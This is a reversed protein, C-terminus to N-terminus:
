GNVSLPGPKHKDRLQAVATLIDEVSIMNLCNHHECNLAADASLTMKDYCPSCPLDKRVITHGTGMPGTWKPDTPGFVAIVPVGVASSIHMLGTDNCLTAHCKKILAASQKLTTKGAVIIPTRRMHHLLEEVALHHSAAGFVIIKIQDNELLRDCTQALKHLSWEKWSQSEVIGVQVALVWKGNLKHNIFFQDAFFTSEKNIYFLPQNDFDECHLAEALMQGKISEHVGSIAPVQINFLYDNVNKWDPSSSHGARYPIGSLLTLNNLHKSRCLYPSILLDFRRKKIQYSLELTNWHSHEIHMIEDVLHSGTIVDECESQGTIIAIHAKPFRKRVAKLSPTFMVMDGIGITAYILIKHVSDLDVTAPQPLLLAAVQKHLFVFSKSIITKIM